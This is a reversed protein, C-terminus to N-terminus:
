SAASQRLRLLKQREWALWDTGPIHIPAPPVADQSPPAPVQVLAVLVPDTSMLVQCDSLPALRGILVTQGDFCAACADPDGGPPPLHSISVAASLRTVVSGVEALHPSSLALTVHKRAQALSTRMQALFAERGKLVWYGAPQPRDALGSLADALNTLRILHQHRFRELTTAPSLAHFRAPEGPQRLVWGQEVLHELIEYSRSLPVSSRKGVEYGTLPGHTSLAAYAEAEYKNFGAEQLAQAIMM